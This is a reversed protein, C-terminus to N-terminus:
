LRIYALLIQFEPSFVLRQLTSFDILLNEFAAPEDGCFNAFLHQSEFDEEVRINMNVCQWYINQHEPPTWSVGDTYYDHYLVVLCPKVDGGRRPVAMYSSLVNIDRTGIAPIAGVLWETESSNDMMPLPSTQHQQSINIPNAPDLKLSGGFSEELSEQSFAFQEESQMNGVKAKLSDLKAKLEENQQTLAEIIVRQDFLKDLLTVLVNLFTCM